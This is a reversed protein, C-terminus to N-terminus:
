IFYHETPLIDAEIEEVNDKMSASYESCSDSNQLNSLVLDSLRLMENVSNIAVVVKIQFIKIKKSNRYKALNKKNFVM